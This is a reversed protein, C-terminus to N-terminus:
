SPPPRMSSSATRSPTRMPHPPRHTQVPRLPSPGAPPVDALAAPPLMREGAAPLVPASADADPVPAVCAEDCALAADHPADVPTIVGDSLPSFLTPQPPSPAQPNGYAWPVGLAPRWPYLREPATLLGPQRFDPLEL